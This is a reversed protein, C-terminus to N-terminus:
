IKIQDTRGKTKKPSWKGNKYDQKKKTHKKDQNM